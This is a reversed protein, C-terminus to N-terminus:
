LYEFQYGRYQKYLGRATASLPSQNLNLKRAADAAGEFYLVQGSILNTAKIPKSSKHNKGFKGKIPNQFNLVRYRHLNNESVTVWELNEIRNDDKIGNKHNIHPLNKQNPIFTVAIIRHSLYTSDGIRLRKYGDRDFYQKIIKRKRKRGAADIREDVIFIGDRNVKYFDDFNPISFYEDCKSTDASIKM